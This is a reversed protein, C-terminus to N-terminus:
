IIEISICIKTKHDKKMIHITEEISILTTALDNLEQRFFDIFEKLDMHVM